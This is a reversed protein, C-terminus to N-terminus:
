GKLFDIYLSDHRCFFVIGINNGASLLSKTKVTPPDGKKRWEKSTQKSEHTSHDLCPEDTTISHNLFSNSEEQFENLLCECVQLYLFQQKSSMLLSGQTCNESGQRTQSILCLAVM